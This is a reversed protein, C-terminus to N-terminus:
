QEDDGKSLEKFHWGSWVGVAYMFLILAIIEWSAEIM